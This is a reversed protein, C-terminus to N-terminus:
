LKIKLSTLDEETPAITDYLTNGEADMVVIEFVATQGCNGWHVMDFHGTSDTEAYAEGYLAERNRVQLVLGELPQGTEKDIVQGSLVFECQDTSPVGYCAQMIFMVTTLASAKLLGRLWKYINM